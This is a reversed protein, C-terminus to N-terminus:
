SVCLSHLRVYLVPACWALVPQHPQPAPPFQWASCHSHSFAHRPSPMSDGGLDRDGERYACFHTRQPSPPLHCQHEEHSMIITDKDLLCFCGPHLPSSGKQGNWRSHSFERCSHLFLCQLNNAFCKVLSCHSLYVPTPLLLNYNNTYFIIYYNFLLVLIFDTNRTNGVALRSKGVVTNICLHCQQRSIAWNSTSCPFKEINSLHSWANYIM